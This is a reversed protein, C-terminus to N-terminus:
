STVAQSLGDLVTTWNKEYEDQRKLEAAQPEGQLKAQTLTVKTKPGAPELDITILNYNEPADKAGALPSFHSFALRKAPEFSRIEGHDEYAKGQYEGRFRIAGGVKWDSEVDSGMFYTKLTKPTTLARWVKDAPADITKSVARRTPEHPEGDSGRLTSVDATQRHNRM